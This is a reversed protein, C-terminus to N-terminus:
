IVKLPWRVKGKLIFIFEQSKITIELNNESQFMLVLMAAEDELVLSDINTEDESIFGM